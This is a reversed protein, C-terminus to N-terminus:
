RSSLVVGLTAFLVAFGIPMYWGSPGDLVGVLDAALVSFTV